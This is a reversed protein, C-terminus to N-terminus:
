WTVLNKIKFEVDYKCCATKRQTNKEYPISVFQHLVRVKSKKRKKIIYVIYLTKNFNCSLLIM